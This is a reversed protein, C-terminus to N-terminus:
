RGVLPGFSGSGKNLLSTESLLVPTMILLEETRGMSKWILAIHNSQDYSPGDIYLQLKDVKRAGPPGANAWTRATMSSVDIRYLFEYNDYAADRSIGTSIFYGNDRDKSMCWAQVQEELTGNEALTKLASQAAAVSDIKWPRFGGATILQDPTRGPKGGKASDEGRYSYQLTDPLPM